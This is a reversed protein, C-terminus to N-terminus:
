DNDTFNFSNWVHEHSIRTPFRTIIKFLIGDKIVVTDKINTMAGDNSSAYYSTGAKYGDILGPGRDPIQMSYVYEESPIGTNRSIHNQELLWGTPHTFSTNEYIEVGVPRNGPGPRAASDTFWIRKSITYSDGKTYSNNGIYELPRVIVDHEESIYSKAPYDMTFHYEEDTYVSWETFQSKTSAAGDSTAKDLPTPTIKDTKNNHIFFCYFVLTILLLFAATNAAKKQQTNM